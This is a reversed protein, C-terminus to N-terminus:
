LGYDKKFIKRLASCFVVDGIDAQEIFMLLEDFESPNLRYRSCFASNAVESETFGKLEKVWYHGYERNEIEGCWKKRLARMVSSNGAHKYGSVITNNRMAAAHPSRRSLDGDCSGLSRLIVGLNLFVGLVGNNVTPSVKLFQFDELCAVDEVTVIYGVYAAGQIIRARVDEMRAGRTHLYVSMLICQIAINNLLTTLCSGSYEKPTETKLKVKERPNLPNPIVFLNMCQSIAVRFLISVGTGSTIYEVIWFIREGNSMDCSSIDLNAKYVGDVCEISVCADDSHYVGIFGKGTWLEQFVEVLDNYAPSLVFRSKFDRFCFWEVFCQKVVSVASGVLSGECTYDGIIRPYKNFKAWEPCKVKALVKTSYRYLSLFKGSDLLDQLSKVRLQKKIHPLNANEVISQYIEGVHHNLAVVVRNRIWGLWIFLFRQFRSDGFRINKNQNEKLLEDFGERECERACTMRRLGKSVNMVSDKAYKIAGSYFMPGFYSTYGKSVWGDKPDETPFLLLGHSFSEEFDHLTKGSSELLRLFKINLDPDFHFERNNVFPKEVDCKVNFIRFM